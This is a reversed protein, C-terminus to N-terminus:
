VATATKNLPPLQCKLGLWDESLGLRDKRLVIKSITEYTPNELLEKVEKHEALLEAMYHVNNHLSKPEFICQYTLHFSLLDALKLVAGKIQDTFSQKLDTVSTTLRSLLSAVPTLRGRNLRIGLEFPKDKRIPIVKKENPLIEHDNITFSLHEVIQKPLDPNKEFKNSLNLLDLIDNEFTVTLIPSNHHYKPFHGAHDDFSQMIIGDTELCDDTIPTANDFVVRDKKCLAKAHATSQLIMSKFDPMADLPMFNLSVVSAAFSLIAYFVGKIKAKVKMPDGTIRSVLTICRKTSNMDLTYWLGGFYGFIPGM